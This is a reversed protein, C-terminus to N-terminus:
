SPASQILSSINDVIKRLALNSRGADPPAQRRRRLDIKTRVDEPTELLILRGQDALYRDVAGIKGRFISYVPVGLAAAERNMTGGGSVVLDSNWILNLGDVARRPIIARGSEFLVPWTARLWGAQAENRPLVVAKVASQRGLLDMLAHFLEESAPNHYHAENAPPRVTAVVHDDALGLEARIAPDPQFKGVYVDEKIGPYRRLSKGKFRVASEPIVEPAMAWTPAFLARAFEYDLILLSPIGLFRCALLQARSGHSVGLAPRERLAFPVLRAARICLGIVKLVKHRGYHRGIRTYKFHYLDALGCVQFASRATLTVSYGRNELEEIIPAFFPVHPSNDLDIWIKKMSADRSASRVPGGSAARSRAIEQQIDVSAARGASASRFLRQM